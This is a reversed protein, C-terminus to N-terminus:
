ARAPPESRRIKGWWDRHEAAWRYLPERIRGRVREPLLQFAKAPFRVPSDLRVLVEEAAAGCSYVTDGVFLHVCDEYNAQLRAQQEATLESFGVVDFTGRAAAYEVCWTCFGCDDDYVITPHSAM